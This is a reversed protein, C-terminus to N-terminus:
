SGAVSGAVYKEAARRKRTRSYRRQMLKGGRPIKIKLGPLAARGISKCLCVFAAPYGYQKTARRTGSREVENEDRREGGTRQREKETGRDRKYRKSEENMM